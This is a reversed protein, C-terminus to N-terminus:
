GVSPSDIFRVKLTSSAYLHVYSLVFCFSTFDSVQVYRDLTSSSGAMLVLFILSQTTISISPVSWQMTGVIVSVFSLVAYLGLYYSVEHTVRGDAPADDIGSAWEM